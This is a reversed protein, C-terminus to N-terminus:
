PLLVEVNPDSLTHIGKITKVLQYAQYAASQMKEKIDPDDVAHEIDEFMKAAREIGNTMRPGSQEHYNIPIKQM